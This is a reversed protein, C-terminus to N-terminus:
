SVYTALLKALDQRLLGRWGSNLVLRIVRGGFGAFGSHLLRLCTGDEVSELTWTVTTPNRMPGGQWTYSLQHPPDVTLVECRVVGDFWPQPPARFTFQHGVIPRFDNPMLWETLAQWVREPPHPYTVEFMIERGMINM